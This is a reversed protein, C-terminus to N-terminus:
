QEFVTCPILRFLHLFIVIIRFLKVTSVNKEATGLLTKLLVNITLNPDHSYLCVDVFTSFGGHGHNLVGTVHTKLLDAGNM